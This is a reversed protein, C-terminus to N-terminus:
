DKAPRSYLLDPQADGAGSGKYSQKHCRVTVLINNIAKLTINALQICNEQLFNCQSIPLSTIVTIIQMLGRNNLGVARRGTSLHGSLPLKGLCHIGIAKGVREGALAAPTSGGPCQQRLFPWSLGCHEGNVSRTSVWSTTETRSAKKLTPELSRCM